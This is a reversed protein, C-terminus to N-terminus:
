PKKRRSKTGKAAVAHRRKPNFHLQLDGRELMQETTWESRIQLMTAAIQDPTPMYDDTPRQQM